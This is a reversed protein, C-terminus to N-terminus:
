IGKAFNESTIEDHNNYFMQEHTRKIKQVSNTKTKQLPIICIHYTTSQKRFNFGFVVNKKDYCLGFCLIFM